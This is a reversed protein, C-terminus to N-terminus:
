SNNVMAKSREFELAMELDSIRAELEKIRAIYFDITAILRQGVRTRCRHVGGGNSELHRPTKEHSM